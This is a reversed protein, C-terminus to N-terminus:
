DAVELKMQWALLGPTFVVRATQGPATKVTVANSKWWDQKTQLTHTGPTVVFEALRDPKPMFRGVSKGDILLEVSSWYVGPSAAMGIKAQAVPARDPARVETRIRSVLAVMEREFQRDSISTASARALAALDDPLEKRPPLAAGNFLAVFLPRGSSLATSLEVRVPDDSALIRAKQPGAIAGRWQPGICALVADCSKVAELMRDVFDTGKPIMDADVFLEVPPALGAQQLADSLAGVYGETDQRRYSIFLRM